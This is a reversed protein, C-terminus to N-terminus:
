LSYTLCHALPHQLCLTRSVPLLLNWPGSTLAYKAHRLVLLPVESDPESHALCAWYSTINAVYHAIVDHLAQCVM